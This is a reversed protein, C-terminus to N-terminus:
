KKHQCYLYIECSEQRSAKPKILKCSQFTSNARLLLEKDDEGRLFKALFTGGRRLSSDAINLADNVLELSRIHDLSKAGSTNHLMDSLIVDISRGKLHQQLHAMVTPSRFDGLISTVGKIEEFPLLDIAFIQGGLSQDVLKSAVLSWGGPAAGLDIEVYIGIM